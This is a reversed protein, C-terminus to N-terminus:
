PQMKLTGQQKGDRVVLALDVLSSYVDVIATVFLLRFARLRYISLSISTEEGSGTRVGGGRRRAFEPSFPM